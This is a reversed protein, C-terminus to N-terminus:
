NFFNRSVLLCYGHYGLINVLWMVLAHVRIVNGAARDVHGTIRLTVWWMQNPEPIWLWPIQHPIQRFMFFTLISGLALPFFVMVLIPVIIVPLLLLTM